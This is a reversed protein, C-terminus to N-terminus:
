KKREILYSVHTPQISYDIIFKPKKVLTLKLKSNNITDTPYNCSIVFSSTNIKKYDEFSVEYKVNLHNPFVTMQMNQPVNQIKIPISIQEETYKAIEGNVRVVDVNYSVVSKSSKELNINKSFSTNVNEMIALETAVFSISDLFKEPGKVLISDPKSLLDNKLRYGPKYNLSLNIKVPVRKTKLVGLDLFLSDVEFRILHDKLQKQLQLLQTNPLYYYEYKERQVFKSVDIEIEKKYFKHSLIRFGTTEIQTLVESKPPKQLILNDPLNTYNITYRTFYTYNESLATFLWFVSSLLLFLFMTKTKKSNKFQLIKERSTM